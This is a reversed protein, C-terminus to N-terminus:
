WSKQRLFLMKFNYFYILSSLTQLKVWRRFTHNHPPLRLVFKHSTPQFNSTWYNSFSWPESNRKGCSLSWYVVEDILNWTYMYMRAPLHSITKRLKGNLCRQRPNCRWNVLLRISSNWALRYVLNINITSELLAINKRSPGRLWFQDCFELLVETVSILFDAYSRVQISLTSFNVEESSTLSPM